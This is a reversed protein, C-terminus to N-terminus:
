YVAFFLDAGAPQHNWFAQGDPYYDLNADQGAKPQHWFLTFPSQGDTNGELDLIIAGGVTGPVPDFSLGVREIQENLTIQLPIEALLQDGRGDTVGVVRLTVSIQQPWPGPSGVLLAVGSLDFDSVQVIQAVSTGPGMVPTTGTRVFQTDGPLRKELPLQRVAAEGGAQHHLIRFVGDPTQMSSSLSYNQRLHSYLEPALAKVTRVGTVLGASRGLVVVAAPDAQLAAVAQQPDRVEGALLTMQSTGLPADLLFVLGPQAPWAVVPSHGDWQTDNLLAELGQQRETGLHIRATEREWKSLTPRDLHTALWLQEGLRPGLVLVCGLVAAVLGIRNRLRSLLVPLLLLLAWAILRLHDTDGRGLLTSWGALSLAALPALKGLQRRWVLWLTGAPLLWALVFLLRWALTRWAAQGPMFATLSEGTNLGSFVEALSEGSTFTAWWSRGMEGGFRTVPYVVTDWWVTGLYGKFIAAIAFPALVLAWGGGVELWSWGPLSNEAGRRGLFWGGLLIVAGYAMMDLGFLSLLGWALGLVWGRGLRNGTPIQNAVVAAFVAAAVYRPYVPGLALVGVPVLWAWRGAGLRRTLWFGFGAAVGDLVAKFVALALVSHGFIQLFPLILVYRAPGYISFLDRFLHGGGALVRGGLLWLGDDMLNFGQIHVRLGVLLPLLGALLPLLRYFTTNSSKSHAAGNKM